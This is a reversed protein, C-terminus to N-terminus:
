GPRRHQAVLSLLLNPDASKRVFAAVGPIHGDLGASYAILPVAALTPDARIHAAFARGDMIPMYLDMIVLSAPKGDRLYQLAEAGDAAGVTAYGELELVRQLLTRTDPNDDVILIPWGPRSAHM